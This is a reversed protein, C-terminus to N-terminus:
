SDLVGDGDDSQFDLVGDGDDVSMRNMKPFIKGVVGDVFTGDETDGRIGNH